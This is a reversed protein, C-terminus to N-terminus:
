ITPNRTKRYIKISLGLVGAFLFFYALSRILPLQDKVVVLFVIAFLLLTAVENWVRLFLSNLHCRGNQIQRFIIHCYLHYIALLAVFGLKILLWRHSTLPWFYSALAPGLIMTIVASPWTIGYWLRKQMIAFQQILANTTELSLREKNEKAEQAYIFLRVIYFLGAFWTVVFIIHLAKLVLYLM